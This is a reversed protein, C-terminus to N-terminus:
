NECTIPQSIKSDRAVAFSEGSGHSTWVEAEPLQKRGERTWVAEQAASLEEVSGVHERTIRSAVTERETRCQITRSYFFFPAWNKRMMWQGDEFIWSQGNINLVPPGHELGLEFERASRDLQLISLRFFFFLRCLHFRFTKFWRKRNLFIVSVTHLSSLTASRRPPAKKPSFMNRIKPMTVAKAKFKLSMTQYYSLLKPHAAKFNFTM